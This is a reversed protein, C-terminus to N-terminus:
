FRVTVEGVDFGWCGDTVVPVKRGSADRVYLLDDVFTHSHGGIVLDLWRTQPVLAIDDEYGLHSLLIIMDCKEVKHLYEAWKGVAEVTDMQRLSKSIHDAVNSRLDPAAGIIGIRKGSKEIIAYPSVLSALPTGGFDVNACVVPCKVRELRLALDEIGNDFEHNGLTICDYRMANIVNVELSGGLQTYYSSGQNFDGAHLLLVADEGRESRVSDIIAAREIIGGRGEYPATRMAEHHSHTDNVHLISLEKRVACSCLALACALLCVIKRM